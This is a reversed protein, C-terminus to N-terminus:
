SKMRGQLYEEVGDESFVCGMLMEFAEFMEQVTPEYQGDLEDETRKIKSFDASYSYIEQEIIIKM